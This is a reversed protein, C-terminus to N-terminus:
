AHPRVSPKLPIRTVEAFVYLRRDRAARATLEVAMPERSGLITRASARDKRKPGERKKTM